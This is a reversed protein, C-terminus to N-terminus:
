RAAARSALRRAATTENLARATWTIVTPLTAGSDFRGSFGTRGNMPDGFNLFYAGGTTSDVTLTSGDACQGTMQMPEPDLQALGEYTIPNARTDFALESSGSTEDISVSTAHRIRCDNLDGEFEIQMQGSHVRYRRMTSSPDQTADALWIVSSSKRTMSGVGTSTHVIDMEWGAPLATPDAVVPRVATTGLGGSALNIAFGLDLAEGVRVDAGLPVELDVQWRLEDLQRGEAVAKSAVERGGFSAVVTQRPLLDEAMGDVTLSVLLTDPQGDGPVTALEIPGDNELLSGTMGDAAIVLDRIHIDRENHLLEAGNTDKVDLAERAYAQQASLGLAMWEFVAEAMGDAFARSVAGAFGFYVSDRGHLAQAIDSDATRQGGFWLLKADLGDPYVHRFFDATLLLAVAGQADHLVEVGPHQSHVLDLVQAADVAQAAIGLRCTAVASCLSATHSSVVIVDHADFETFSGVDVSRDEASANERLTVRDAYGPTEGLLQAVEGVGAANQGQFQWRYPDLLLASRQRPGVDGGVIGQAQERLAGTGGARAQRSAAAPPGGAAAQTAQGLATALAWVPRGGPLRLRIAGGDHEVDAEPHQTKLWTVADDTSEGGALRQALAAAVGDSAEIVAPDVQDWRCAFDLRECELAVQPDAGQGSPPEDSTGGGGGGCAGLMVALSALVATGARRWCEIKSM